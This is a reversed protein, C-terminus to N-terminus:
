RPPEQLQNESPTLSVPSTPLNNFTEPGRIRSLQAMAWLATDRVEPNSDEAAYRLMQSMQAALEYVRTLDRIANKRVEPSEDQLSITLAKNLPKLTNTGIQSIAGLILSRQQSDSDILADVLPKVARSDGQQALEWVAKSRKNPDAGRLDSILEEVIDIKSLRTTKKQPLTAETSELGSQTNEYSHHSFQQHYGQPHHEQALTETQLNNLQSKQTSLNEEDALFKPELVTKTKSFKRLLFLAVGVLITITAAIGPILWLLKGRESSAQNATTTNTTGPALQQNQATQLRSQTTPGIYGLAELGVAQQFKSVAIKTSAGYIGDVKDQYYGLQKLQKQLQAVDSGQDGSRIFTRETLQEAPSQALLVAQPFNLSTHSLRSVSSKTDQEGQRVAKQQVLGQSVPISSPSADSLSVLAVAPELQPQYSTDLSLGFSTVCTALFVTPLRRSMSYSTVQPEVM